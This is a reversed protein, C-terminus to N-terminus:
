SARCSCVWLTVCPSRRVVCFCVLARTFGCIAGRKLDPILVHCLCHKMRIGNTTVRQDRFSYDAALIVVSGRRLWVCGCTSLGCLLYCFYVCFSFKYLFGFLCLVFIQQTSNLGSIVQEDISKDVTLCNILCKLLQNNTWSIHWVFIGFIQLNELILIFLKEEDRIMFQIVPTRKSMKNVCVCIQFTVERARPVLSTGKEKNLTEASSM